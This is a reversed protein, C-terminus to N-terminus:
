MVISNLEKQMDERTIREAIIDLVYKKIKEIM